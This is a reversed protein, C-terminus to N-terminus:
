EVFIQVRDGVGAEGEWVPVARTWDPKGAILRAIGDLNLGSAQPVILALGSIFGTPIRIDLKVANTRENFIKIRLFDARELPRADSGDGRACPPGGAVVIADPEVVITLPPTSPPPPPASDEDNSRHPLPAAVPPDGRPPPPRSPEGGGEAAYRDAEAWYEPFGVVAQLDVFTPLGPPEVGQKIYALATRQAAVVAGVMSLPYAVLQFGLAKLEAPPLVPTKGGGELNNAMLIVGTGRVAAALAAMEDVSALADVFVGDAGAEAFAAARWLAEDLSAAQRADSRAIVFIGSDSEDRADVAARVRALADPRPVVAKNRVHGCSKPSAQDEILIGAAGAAAFGAVTRKVSVANGYGTDGDAIIPLTATAETCTSLARLVESYSLLGVDPFGAAAAVSFGSMFAVEFGATEILRASLGDYCCPAQTSTHTPQNANFCRFVRRHGQKKRGLCSVVLADDGKLLTRLKHSREPGTLRRGPAAGDGGLALVVLATPVAARAARRLHRHPRPWSAGGPALALAQM